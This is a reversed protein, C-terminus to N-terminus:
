KEEKRVLQAFVKLIEPDDSSLEFSADVYEGIDPLPINDSNENFYAMAEEMTPKDIYVFGFLQWTVAVEMKKEKKNIKEPKKFNEDLAQEMFSVLGKAGGRAKIKSKMLRYVFKRCAGDVQVTKGEGNKTVSLLSNDEPDASFTFSDVSEVSYQSASTCGDEDKPYIKNKRTYIKNRMIKEKKNDEAAM